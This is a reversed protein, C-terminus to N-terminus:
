RKGHRCLLGPLGEGLKRRSRFVRPDSVHLFDRGAEGSLRTLEYLRLCCCLVVKTATVVLGIPLGKM